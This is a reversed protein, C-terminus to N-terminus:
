TAPPKRRQEVLTRLTAVPIPPHERHVMSHCNSCLPELDTAINIRYDTGVSAVPTTHHIEIYGAGLPGYVAAFDFGCVVCRSGKLQICAERNVKKREYRTVLSQIPAGEPEGTSLPEIEEVGILTALMGFFPVVLELVLAEFAAEDAEERVFPSLRLSLDLRSWHAPWHEPSAAETDAGNIRMAVKVKKAQIASAFAAFTQRAESGCRGMQAVLPAAFKGAIFRTEASRWGLQLRVTFSDNPHSDAPVFDCFQGDKDTGLRGAVALGVRDAIVRVAFKVTNANM